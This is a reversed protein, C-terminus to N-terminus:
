KFKVVRPKAVKAPIVKNVIALNEDHTKAKVKEPTKLYEMMLDFATKETMKLAPM